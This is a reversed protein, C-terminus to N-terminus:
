QVTFKVASCRTLSISYFNYLDMKWYLTSNELTKIVSKGADANNNLTFYIKNKKKLIIMEHSFSPNVFKHM